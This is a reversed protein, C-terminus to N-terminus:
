AVKKRYFIAIIFLTGIWSCCAGVIFPLSSWTALLFGGIFATLAEALVQISLNTGLAQGQIKKSVQESVLIAPFAFGIALALGIPALTFFLSWKPVSLAFFLLSIGLCLTGIILTQHPPFYRAFQKFIIPSFILFLSLYANAQGLQIISFQFHNVLFASFFNLFFFMAFFIFLHALFLTGLRPLQIGEVFSLFVKKLEITMEPDPFRTEKFFFLVNLFGLFVLIAAAWFPTDYHFWSVLKSDALSSGILPGFFFALSSFSIIWGFNKTKAKRNESIDAVSAQAIVINGELLGCFFRSVFLLTPLTHAISLACSIYTPIIALLSILLIPKRGYKDSFKGLLPSGLFQGAPYMTFLIGLLISRTKQSMAM